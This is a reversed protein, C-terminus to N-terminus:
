FSRLSFESFTYKKLHRIVCDDTWYNTHGLAPVWENIPFDISPGEVEMGVFDDLRYINLWSSIGDHVDHSPRTSKLNFEKSFYFGYLHSTPSGMTVLDIDIPELGATQMQARLRGGRLAEVSIVTGQSHSIIVVEDPNESQLLLILTDTLRDQIRSRFPHVNIGELESVRLNPRRVFYVVIDKPRTM